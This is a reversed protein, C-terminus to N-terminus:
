AHLTASSKRQQSSEISYSVDTHLLITLALNTANEVYIYSIQIMEDRKM